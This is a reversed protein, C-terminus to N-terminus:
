RPPRGRLGVRYGAVGVLSLSGLWVLLMGGPSQFSRILFTGTIVNGSVAIGGAGGSYREIMVCGIALLCVGVAAIVM